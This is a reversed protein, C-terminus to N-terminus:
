ERLDYIQEKLRAMETEADPGALSLPPSVEEIDTIQIKKTRIIELYRSQGWNTRFCNATQCIAVWTIENGPNLQSLLRRDRNLHWIKKLLNPIFILALLFWVGFGLIKLPWEIWVLQKNILWVAFCIFLLYYFVKFIIRITQKFKFRFASIHYMM